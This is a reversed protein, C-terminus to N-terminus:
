INKTCFQTRTFSLFGQVFVESKKIHTHHGRRINSSIYTLAISLCFHTGVRITNRSGGRRNIEPWISDDNFTSIFFPLLTLREITLRDLKENERTPM